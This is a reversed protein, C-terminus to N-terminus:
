RAHMWDLVFMLSPYWIEQLIRWVAVLGIIMLIPQSKVFSYFRDAARSLGSLVGSGDLPPWPLLNLLALIINLLLFTSAIKAIAYAAGDPEMPAAFLPWETREEFPLAADTWILTKLVFFAITALLINAMPGALSMLAARKPHRHAWAADIPTYAWGMCWKGGSLFLMALPVIVTGFPERQIHPIPNLSVQGGVYATRDGGLLAFLAHAAEHVVLSILLTFYFLAVNVLDIDM